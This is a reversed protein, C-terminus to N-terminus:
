VYYYKYSIKSCSSGDVIGLFCYERLMLFEKEKVLNMLVFFVMVMRVFM